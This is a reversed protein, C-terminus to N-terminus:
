DLHREAISRVGEREENLGACGACVGVWALLHVTAIARMFSGMLGGKRFPSSVVAAKKRYPSKKSERPRLARGFPRYSMDCPEAVPNSSRSAIGHAQFENGGGM